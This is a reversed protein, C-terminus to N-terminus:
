FPLLLLEGRLVPTLDWACTASLCSNSARGQHHKVGAQTQAKWLVVFLLGSAEPNLRRM